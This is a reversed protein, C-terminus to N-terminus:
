EYVIPVTSYQVTSYQVTSYEQLIPLTYHIPLKYHIIFVASNIIWTFFSGPGRRGKKGEERGEETMNKVDYQVTSYQVTSYEGRREEGRRKMRWFNVQKSLRVPRALSCGSMSRLRRRRKMSLRRWTSDDEHLTTKVHSCSEFFRSILRPVRPDQVGPCQVSSVPCQVRNCCLVFYRHFSILGCLFSLRTGKGGEERQWM